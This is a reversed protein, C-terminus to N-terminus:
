IRIKVTTLHVINSFQECLYDVDNCMMLSDWLYISINYRLRDINHARLKLCRFNGNIHRPQDHTNVLLIGCHETKFISHYVTCKYVFPFSVFIKDILHGCHTPSSVM